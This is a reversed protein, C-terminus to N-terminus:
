PYILRYFLSSKAPSVSVQNQGNVVNVANTVSTWNAGTLLSNQQLRFGTSPASWFIVVTNTNALGIGLFPASAPPTIPTIMVEDVWAADSYSINTPADGNYQTYTWMLTHDGTPLDTQVYQWGAGTGSISAYVTGDVSFTCGNTPQSSVSWWFSLQMTQNLNTETELWSQQETWVAAASWPCVLPGSQAAGFGDESVETQGFWPANGGTAWILNSNDFAASLPLGFNATMTKHSDMVLSIVPKGGPLSGSWSIFDQGPDPIATLTVVQGMTYYPQAPSAVATGHFGSLHLRPNYSAPNAPNTGELYEDLNDVGDGDYDGTATQNLNGFYQMEWWDPIGNGNSDLWLPAATSTVVGFANSLIVSFVNSGTLPPNTLVLSDGTAGTIAVGNSFWQYSIGPGNAVVAFTAQSNSGVLQAQPQATISPATAGSTLVAALNGPPDYTLSADQARVSFLFALLLLICVAKLVVIKEITKL